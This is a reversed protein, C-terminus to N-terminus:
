QHKKKANKHAEAETYKPALQGLVTIILTGLSKGGIAGYVCPVPWLQWDRHWDLPIVFAGLWAGALACVAPIGVFFRARSSSIRYLEM